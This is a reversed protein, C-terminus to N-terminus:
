EASLMHSVAHGLNSHLIGGAQDGHVTCVFFLFLRMFLSLSHIDPLPPPLSPATYSVFVPFKGLLCTRMKQYKSYGSRRRPSVYGRLRIPKPACYIVAATFYCSAVPLSPHPTSGTDGRHRQSICGYFSTKNM